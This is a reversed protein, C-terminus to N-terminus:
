RCSTRATASSSGSAGGVPGFSEYGVLQDPRLLATEHLRLDNSDSAFLYRDSSLRRITVPPDSASSRSASASSSRRTPSRRSSRRWRRRRLDQTVRRQSVVIKDLEVMEITPRCGTSPGPSSAPEGRARRRAAAMAEPLPLREVEDAIGAESTELEYYVDNAARWADVLARRDMAEGGVM